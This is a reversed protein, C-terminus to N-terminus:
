KSVTNIPTFLTPLSKRGTKHSSNIKLRGKKPKTRKPTSKRRFYFVRLRAILKRGFFGKNKCPNYHVCFMVHLILM